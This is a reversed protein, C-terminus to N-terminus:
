CIAGGKKDTTRNKSSFYLTNECAHETRLQYASNIYVICKITLIWGGGPWWWGREVWSFLLFDQFLKWCFQRTISRLSRHDQKFSFLHACLQVCQVSRRYYTHANTNIVKVWVSSCFLDHMTGSLACWVLNRRNTQTHAFNIDITLRSKGIMM